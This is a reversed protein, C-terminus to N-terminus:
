LVPSISGKFQELHKRARDMLIKEAAIPDVVIDGGYKRVFVADENDRLDKILPKISKLFLVLGFRSEDEIDWGTLDTIEQSANKLIEENMESFLRIWEKKAPVNKGPEDGDELRLGAARSVGEVFYAEDGGCEFGNDGVSGYYLDLNKLDHILQGEDYANEYELYSIDVGDKLAMQRPNLIIKGKEPNGYEYEAHEYKELAEEYAEWEPSDKDLTLFTTSKDGIDAGRPYVCGFSELYEMKEEDSWECPNGYKDTGSTKSWEVWPIIYGKKDFYDYIVGRAAAVRGGLDAMVEKVKAEYDKSEIQDNDIGFRRKRLTTVDGVFNKWQEDARLPSFSYYSVDISM